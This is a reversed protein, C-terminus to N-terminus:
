PMLAVASSIVAAGLWYQSKLYQREWFCWAALILYQVFLIWNLTKSIM